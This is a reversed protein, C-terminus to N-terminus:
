RFPKLLRQPTVGLANAVRGLTKLTINNRGSEMRCFNCRDMRIRKALSEQTIGREERIARINHAAIQYVTPQREMSREKNLRNHQSFSPANM